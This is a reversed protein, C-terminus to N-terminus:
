RKEKRIRAGRLYGADSKEGSMMRYLWIWVAFFVIAGAIIPTWITALFSELTHTQVLANSFNQWTSRLDGLYDPDVFHIFYSITGHVANFYGNKQFFWAPGVDFFWMGKWVGIVSGVGLITGAFFGLTRANKKKQEEAHNFNTAM